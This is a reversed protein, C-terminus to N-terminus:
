PAVDEQLKAAEGKKFQAGHERLLKAIDSHGYRMAYFLPSKLRKRPDNVPAGHALLLNVVDINGQYTAVMLPTGDNLVPGSADVHNALLFAVEKECGEYASVFLWRKLYRMKDLDIKQTKRWASSCMLQMMAKKAVLKNQGTVLVIGSIVTKKIMPTLSNAIARAVGEESDFYKSPLSRSDVFIWIKEAAQYQVSIIHREDSLMFAVPFTFNEIASRLYRLCQALGKMDYVGSFKGAIVIGGQATIESSEVLPFSTLPHQIPKINKNKAYSAFLHTYKEPQHCLEVSELFVREQLQNQNHDVRRNKLRQLDRDFSDIRNLLMEHAAVCAVGHCVGGDDGFYGFQKLKDIIGQASNVWTFLQIHSAKTKEKSKKKERSGNNMRRAM